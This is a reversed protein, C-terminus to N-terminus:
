ELLIITNNSDSDNWVSYVPLNGIRNYYDITDQPSYCDIFDGATGKFVCDQDSTSGEYVKLMASRNIMNLSLLYILSMKGESDDVNVIETSKFIRCMDIFPVVVSQSGRVDRIIVDGEKNSDYYMEYGVGSKKVQM